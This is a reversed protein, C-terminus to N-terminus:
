LKWAKLDLHKDSDELKVYMKMPFATTSFFSCATKGIKYFIKFINQLNWTNEM